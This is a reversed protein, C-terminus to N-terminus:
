EKPSFVFERVAHDFRRPEELHGLHGSHELVALRSNPILEHLELGWRPGCIVDHRGM